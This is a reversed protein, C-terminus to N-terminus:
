ASLHVRHRDICKPFDFCGIIQFSLTTLTDKYVKRGLINAGKSKQLNFKVM